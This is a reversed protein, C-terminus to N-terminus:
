SPCHCIISAGSAKCYVVFLQMLSTARDILINAAVGSIDLLSMAIWCEELSIQSYLLCGDPSRSHISVAWTKATRSSDRHLQYGNSSTSPISPIWGLGRSRARGESRSRTALSCMSSQQPLVANGVFSGSDEDGASLVAGARSSTGSRSGSVRTLDVGAAAAGNVIDITPSRRVSRYYIRQCLREPYSPGYHHVKHNTSVSGTLHYSEVLVHRPLTNETEPGTITASYMIPHAIYSSTRTPWSLSTPSTM